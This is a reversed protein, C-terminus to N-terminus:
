IGYQITVAKEQPVFENIFSAESTGQEGKENDVNIM